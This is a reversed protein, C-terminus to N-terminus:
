RFNEIAPGKKKNPSDVTDLWQLQIRPFNHFSAAVPSPSLRISMLALDILLAKQPKKPENLNERLATAREKRMVQNSHNENNYPSVCSGLAAGLMASM